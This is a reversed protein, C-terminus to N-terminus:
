ESRFTEGFILFRPYKWRLLNKGNEEELGRGINLENCCNIIGNGNEYRVHLWYFIRDGFCFFNIFVIFAPIVDGRSIYFQM